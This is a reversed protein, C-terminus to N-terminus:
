WTSLATVMKRAAVQVPKGSTEDLRYVGRGNSFFVKGDRAVTYAMVGTALTRSIGDTGQRVLEWNQPVASVIEDQAAERMQKEMNVWRGYLFVAKPDPGERKPTTGATKLPKGSFMVSFMNLFAFIARLLRFPFLVVDLLMAGPSVRRVPEYPRKLYYLAGDPGYAPCLFDWREDELVPEMNGSEFDVTHISAPGLGIWEGRANRALGCTQYAFKRSGDPVWVPYSDLSDGETLERVGGGQGPRFLAIRSAGHDQAAAVLWEEDEGGGHRVAIAAFRHKPGHLLRREYKEAPEYAFLGRVDQADVAYYLQDNVGAGAVCSFEATFTDEVTPAEPLGGRMFQAGSGGARFSARDEVSQLRKKLNTVFESVVETEAGDGSKLFLRGHSIYALRPAM